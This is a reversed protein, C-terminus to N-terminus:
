ITNLFSTLVIYSISSLLTILFVPPSSPSMSTITSGSKLSWLSSAKLIDSLLMGPWPFLHLPSLCCHAQCTLSLWPPSSPQLPPLLPCVFILDSPSQARIQMTKYAMTFVKWNGSKGQSHITVRINQLWHDTSSREVDLLLWSMTKSRTLPRNWVIPPSYSPKHDWLSIVPKFFALASQQHKFIPKHNSTSESSTIYGEQWLCLSKACCSPWDQLSEWVLLGWLATLWSIRGGCAPSTWRKKAIKFM